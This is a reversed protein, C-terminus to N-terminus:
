NVSHLDKNINELIRDHKIDSVLKRILELDEIQGDISKYALPNSLIKKIKDINKGTLFKVIRTKASNIRPEGANVGVPEDNLGLEKFIYHMLLVQQSTTANKSSEYDIYNNGFSDDVNQFIRNAGTRITNIIKVIKDEKTPEIKESNSIFKELAFYNALFLITEKENLKYIEFFAIKEPQNKFVEKIEKFEKELFSTIPYNDYESERYGFRKILEEIYYDTKFSSPPIELKAIQNIVRILKNRYQNLKRKKSIDDNKEFINKLESLCSEFKKNLEDEYLKPYDITQKKM